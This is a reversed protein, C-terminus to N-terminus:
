VSSQTYEILLEKLEKEARAREAEYEDWSHSTYREGNKKRLYCILFTYEVIISGDGSRLADPNREALALIAPRLTEEGNWYGTVAKIVAGRQKTSFLTMRPTRLPIRLTCGDREVDHPTVTGFM